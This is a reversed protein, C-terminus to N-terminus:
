AAIMAGHRIGGLGPEAKVDARAADADREGIGEADRLRQHHELAGVRAAVLAGDQAQGAAMAAAADDDAVREVEGSVFAALGFADVAEDLLEVREHELLGPHRCLGRCCLGPRFAGDKGDVEPVLTERGGLSVHGHVGGAAMGSLTAFKDIM